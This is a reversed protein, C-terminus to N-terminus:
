KLLLHQLSVTKKGNNTDLTGIEKFGLAKHFALSTENIPRIDIELAVQKINKEIARKQVAEHMLKGLGLRHYQPDIAIRDVYYFDTLNNIFWAYNESLYPKNEELALIFAVIKGQYQVVKKTDCISCLHTLAELDLPSLFHVVEQNIRLVDQYHKPELDILVIESM